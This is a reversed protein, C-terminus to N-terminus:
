TGSAAGVTDTANVAANAVVAATHAAQMQKIKQAEFRLIYDVNHNVFRQFSGRGASKGYGAKPTESDTAGGDAPYAKFKPRSWEPHLRVASGDDRVVM